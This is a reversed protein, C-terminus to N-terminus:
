YKLENVEALLRNILQKLEPINWLGNNCSECSYKLNQNKLNLCKIESSILGLYKNHTLLNWVDYKIPIYLEAFM